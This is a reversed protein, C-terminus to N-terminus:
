CGTGLAQQESADEIRLTPTHVILRLWTVMLSIAV